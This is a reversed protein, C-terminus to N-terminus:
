GIDFCYCRPLFDNGIFFCLLIFDDIIRDINFELNRMKTRENEYELLM